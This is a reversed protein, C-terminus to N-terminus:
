NNWATSWRENSDTEWPLQRHEGHRTAEGLEVMSERGVSSRARWWAGALAQIFDGHGDKHSQPLKPQGNKEVDKGARRMDNAVRESTVRVEISMIARELERFNAMGGDGNNTGAYKPIEGDPLQKGRPSKLESEWVNGYDMRVLEANFPKPLGNAEFDILVWHDGNDGALWRALMVVNHAFQTIGTTNTGYELCQNGFRDLVCCVAFAAGVGHALDCFITFPGRDLDPLEGWIRIDSKRTPLIVVNDHSTDLTGQVDPDCVTEKVASQTNHDFFSNTQACVEMGYLDRLAKMINRRKGPQSLEADVWPSRLMGEEVVDPEGFHYDPKHKYNKDVYVVDGNVIKYAGRWREYNNWWFFHIKLLNSEEEFMMHHFMDFFDNWTSGLILCNTCGNASVVWEEQDVRDYFAFEDAFIVTFRLQRLKQARSVFGQIGAANDVNIFTHKDKTRKLKSAGSRTCKAWAPLHDFFYQLKGLCSNSDPSDLKDEDETIVAIKCEPDHCWKHFLWGSSEWSFGIGRTKNIGAPRVGYCEELWALVSVQDTWPFYPLWRPSPRPEFITLFTVFFFAADLRGMEWIDARFKLDEIARERAYIRWRLLAIPDKYPLMFYFPFRTRARDDIENLVTHREEGMPFVESLIGSKLSRNAKM